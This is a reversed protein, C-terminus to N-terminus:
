FFGYGHSKYVDQWGIALLLTAQVELTMWLAQIGKTRESIGLLKTSDHQATFNSNKTRKEEFSFLAIYVSTNLLFLKVGNTKNQKAYRWYKAELRSIFDLFVIKKCYDILWSRERRKNFFCTTAFVLCVQSKVWHFCLYNM